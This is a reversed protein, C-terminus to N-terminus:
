ARRRRWGEREDAKRDFLGVDGAPAPALDANGERRLLHDPGYEGCLQYDISAEAPVIRLARSATRIVGSGVARGPRVLMVRLRGM